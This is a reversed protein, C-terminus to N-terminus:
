RLAVHHRGIIRQGEAGVVFDLFRRVELDPAARSYLYLYRTLHYAGSRVNAPTPLLDEVPVVRVTDTFVAMSVYG